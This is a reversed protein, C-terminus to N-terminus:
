NTTARYTARSKASGTCLCLLILVIIRSFQQFHKTALILGRAMNVSAESPLFQSYLDQLVGVKPPLIAYTHSGGTGGGKM